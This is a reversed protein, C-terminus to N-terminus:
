RGYVEDWDVSSTCVDMDQCLEWSTLYHEMAKDRDTKILESLNHHDMGQRLIASHGTCFKCPEKPCHINDDQNSM